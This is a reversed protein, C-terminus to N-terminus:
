FPPSYAGEGEQGDSGYGGGETPQAYGGEIKGYQAAFSSYASLIGLHKECNPDGMCSNVVDAAEIHRGIAFLTEARLAAIDLHFWPFHM